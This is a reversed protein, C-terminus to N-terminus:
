RRAMRRFSGVILRLRRAIAKGSVTTGKAVRPGKPTYEKGDLKFETQERLTPNKMSYGNGQWKAMEILMPSGVKIETSEWTGVLGSTGGVTRRLKTEGHSSSGDPRTKTSVYTSTAGDDAVTWMADSTVKGDRKQV